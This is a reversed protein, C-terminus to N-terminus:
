QFQFEGRKEIFVRYQEKMLEKKIKKNTKKARQKIKRDLKKIGKEEEMLRQKKQRQLFTKEQEKLLYYEIITRQNLSLHPIDPFNIIMKEPEDYKMTDRPPGIMHANEGAPREQPTQAYVNVNDLVFLCLILCMLFFMKKM